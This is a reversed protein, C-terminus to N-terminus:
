LSHSKHWWYVIESGSIFHTQFSCQKLCWPVKMLRLQPLTVVPWGFSSDTAWRTWKREHCLVYSSAPLLCLWVRQCFSWSGWKGLTRVPWSPVGWYGESFWMCCQCRVSPACMTMALKLAIGKKLGCVSQRTHVVDVLSWSLKKGPPPVSLMTLKETTQCFLSGRVLM